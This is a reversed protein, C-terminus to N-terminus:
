SPSPGWPWPWPWPSSIDLDFKEGTKMTSRVDNKMTLTTYTNRHERVIEHRYKTLKHIFPYTIATLSLQCLLIGFLLCGFFIVIIVFNAVGRANVMVVCTWLLWSAFVLSEMLKGSMKARQPRVVLGSNSFFSEVPASSAPFDMYTFLAASVSARMKDAKSRALAYLRRCCDHVARSTHPSAHWTTSLIKFNLFNPVCWNRAVQTFWAHVSRLSPALVAPRHTSLRAMSIWWSNVELTL